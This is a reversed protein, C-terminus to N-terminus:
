LGSPLSYTGNDIELAAGNTREQVGIGFEDDMHQARLPYSEYEAAVALGRFSGTRTRFALPKRQQPNFAFAYNAPVWPKVWIEAGNYIGIARNYVNMLDLAQGSAYSSTYPQVIRTDVYAQFGTFARVAAEQAQNIYVRVSGINYHERILTILSDLDAAAFAGGARGIYHTHSASNFTNGWPDPPIAASDANVFARIPLTINKVLRDKYTTNNTPTFIATKIASEVKLQHATMAGSIQAAFEEMTATELYARTWQVSYAVKRLPFGVDVGQSIKQADASGYEDVDVMSTTSGGGFARLNDSTFECLESVMDQVIANHAALLKQIQLYAKDEGYQGVTTSRSAALTDLVQLTGFAM